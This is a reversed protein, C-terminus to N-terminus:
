SITQKEIPTCKSLITYLEEETFDIPSPFILSNAHEFYPVRKIVVNEKNFTTREVIRCAM